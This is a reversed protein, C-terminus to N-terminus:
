GLITRNKARIHDICLHFFKRFYTKTLQIFVVINFVVLESITSDIHAFM